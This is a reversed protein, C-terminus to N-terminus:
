VKQFIRDALPLWHSPRADGAHAFGVQRPYRTLRVGCQNTKIMVHGREGWFKAPLKVALPGVRAGKPWERKNAQDITADLLWEGDVLVALHGWWNGPQAAPRRFDSHIGGLITGVTNREDPFVAAEIRLPKSDYGLRRLVDNLAYSTLVCSDRFRCFKFAEKNAITVLRTLEAKM